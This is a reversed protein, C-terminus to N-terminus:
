LRGAAVAAVFDRALATIEPWRGSQVLPKPCLNSGAGVAFAGAAFWDAINGAEVGGTPMIPIEPFPGRIAQLYAPGGLSGPFLKVVDSGLRHARVIETPTFAGLMVARGTAVLAAALEDDIMPSVLYHAGAGAAEEAQEPCTLTGMGLLIEDGYQENLRRVVSAAQPTSYTIEIAQVGGAVLAAVMEMTKEPSPGRIVAILGLEKLQQLTETKNM